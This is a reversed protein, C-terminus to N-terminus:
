YSANYNELNGTESQYRVRDMHFSELVRSREMKLKLLAEQARVLREYNSLGQMFSHELTKLYHERKPLLQQTIENYVALHEIMGGYASDARNLIRSEVSKMVAQLRKLEIKRANIEGENRNWLPLPVSLQFGFRREKQIGLPADEEMSWQHLIGLRIDAYRKARELKINEEATQAKQQLLLYDPSQMLRIETAVPMVAPPLSGTIQFKEDPLLGLLTRLENALEKSIARMPRMQLKLGDVELSSQTADLSSIEGKVAQAKLFLTREQAVEIQNEAIELRERNALYRIAQTLANEVHLRSMVAVESEAEQVKHRAVTKELRLRATIPFAQEFGASTQMESTRSNDFYSSKLQPHNLRGAQRSRSKVMEITWRAARIEPNLRIVGEPISTLSWGGESATSEEKTVTEAVGSLALFLGALLNAVLTWIQGHDFIKMLM